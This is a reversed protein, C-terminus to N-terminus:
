SHCANVGRTQESPNESAAKLVFLCVYTMNMANQVVHGSMIALLMIFAPFYWRFSSRIHSFITYFGYALIFSGIIGFTAYVDYVDMETGVYMGGFLYNLPGWYMLNLHFRDSLSDGDLAYRGSSLSPMVDEGQMFAVVPEVVGWFGGKDELFLLLDFLYLKGFVGVAVVAFLTLIKGYKPFFKWTFVLLAIPTLLWLAKTGVLMSAIIACLLPLIRKEDLYVVMGYFLAVIWFLSADNAIPIFGKYGFRDGVPYSEFIQLGLLLGIVPAFANIYIFWEYCAFVYRKGRADSMAFMSHFFSFLLFVFLFKNISLFAEIFSATPYHILFLLEGFIASAMGASWILTMKQNLKSTKGNLFLAALMAAEFLTRFLISFKPPSGKINWLLTNVVDGLFFVVMVFTAIHWSKIAKPSVLQHINPGVTLESTM